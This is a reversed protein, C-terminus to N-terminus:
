KSDPKTKAAERTGNPTKPVTYGWVPDAELERKFHGDKEILRLQRPSQSDVSGDPMFRISVSGDERHSADDLEPFEFALKKVLVHETPAGRNADHTKQDKIRYRTPREDFQIEVPEARAIAQSRAFRLFSTFRNWEAVYERGESFGTLRPVAIAAVMALIALVLILEILTFGRARM